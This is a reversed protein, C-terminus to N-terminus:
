RAARALALLADRFAIPTASNEKKGLRKGERSFSGDPLRSCTGVVATPKLEHTWLLPGPEKASSAYLWTKKRARHGYAVQEVATVWGGCTTRQWSCAWPRPLGHAPWAISFAPHELVGGFRRVCDLAHAFTGGDDGVVHEYVKEVFKALACWRACPPHAVVPWPGAYNRADRAEDWLDVDPLGFYVGGTQVYLAAVTV